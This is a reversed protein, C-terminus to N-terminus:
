KTSITARYQEVEWNNIFDIYEQEMHRPGGFSETYRAVLSADAMLETALIAAKETNGLGFIGLASVAVIKPIRKYTKLHNIWQITISQTIADNIISQETLQLDLFLPDSGAYVIHDPTFPRQLPIFATKNTVRLALEVDRRFYSYWSIQSDGNHQSQSVLEILFNAISQSPGFKTVLVTPDPKKLIHTTISKSINEYLREIEQITNGAVFVGHNQLFIIQAAKKYRNIYTDLRDKVKLSLVYGPNSIPIWLPAEGFIDRVAQEGKQSCTLGNVITPHTHVVFSFPLLDHLLTEVSPRKKEEGPLRAAMLDKLVLREREGENTPYQKHWIQGLSARDLRVFDEAQITSLATGSGKIYLIHEDKYSTNGGGAIVYNPDNGYKRSIYVLNDLNM